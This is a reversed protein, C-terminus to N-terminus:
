AGTARCSSRKQRTNRRKIIAPSGACQSKFEKLSDDAVANLYYYFLQMEEAACNVETGNLTPGAYAGAALLPVLILIRIVIKM